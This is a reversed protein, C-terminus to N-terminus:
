TMKRVKRDYLAGLRALKYGFWASSLAMIGAAWYIQYSWAKSLVWMGLVFNLVDWPKSLCISVLKGILKM